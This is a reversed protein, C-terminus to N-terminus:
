TPNNCYSTKLTKGRLRKEEMIEKCDKCRNWWSRLAYKRLLVENTSSFPIKGALFYLLSLHRKDLGDHWIGRFRLV